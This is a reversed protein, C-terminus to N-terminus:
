TLIDGIELFPQGQVLDENELVLDLQFSLGAGQSLRKTPLRHTQMAGSIALLLDLVM